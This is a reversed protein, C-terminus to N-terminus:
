LRKTLNGIGNKGVQLEAERDKLVEHKVENQRVKMDEVLFLM